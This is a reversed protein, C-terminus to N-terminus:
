RRMVMVTRWSGNGAADSAQVVITNVGYFLPIPGTQWTETGNATGSAGAATSWSV